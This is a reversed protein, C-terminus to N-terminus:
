PAASRMAFVPAVTACRTYEGGPGREEHFQYPLVDYLKGDHVRRLIDLTHTRSPYLPDAPILRCITEFM